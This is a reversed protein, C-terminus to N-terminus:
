SPHLTPSAGRWKTSPIPTPSKDHNHLYSFPVIKVVNKTKSPDINEFNEAYEDFDVAYEYFHWAYM